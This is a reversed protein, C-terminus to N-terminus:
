ARPIATSAWRWLRVSGAQEVWIALFYCEVTQETRDRSFRLAIKGNMAIAGARSACYTVEREVSLYRVRGSKVADVLEVRRDVRGSSHTYVLDNALMTALADADGALMAAIRRDDAAIVDAVAFSAAVAIM